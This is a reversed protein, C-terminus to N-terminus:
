AGLPLCHSLTPDACARSNPKQLRLKKMFLIFASYIFPRAHLLYKMLAGPRRRLRHDLMPTIMEREGKVPSGLGLGGWLSHPYQLWELSIQGVTTREGETKAQEIGGWGKRRGRENGGMRNTSRKGGQRVLVTLETQVWCTFFHLEALYCIVQWSCGIPQLGGEQQPTHNNNQHLRQLFCHCSVSLWWCAGM